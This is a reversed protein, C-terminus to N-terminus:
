DHRNQENFEDETLGHFGLTMGKHCLSFHACSSGNRKIFFWLRNIRVERFLYAPLDYMELEDRIFAALDRRRSFEVPGGHSDPLYLGSLGFSTCYRAIPM